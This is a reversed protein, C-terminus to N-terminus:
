KQLREVFFKARSLNVDVDLIRILFQNDGMYVTEYGIGANEIVMEEHGESKIRATVSSWHENANNSIQILDIVLANNFITAHNNPDVVVVAQNQKITSIINASISFSSWFIIVTALVIMSGAILGLHGRFLGKRPTLNPKNTIRLLKKELIFLFLRSEKFYNERLEPSMELAKRRDIAIYAILVIMGFALLGPTRAVDGYVLGSISIFALTVLVIGIVTLEVYSLYLKIMTKM